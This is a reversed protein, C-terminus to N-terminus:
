KVSTDLALEHELLLMGMNSFVERALVLSDLAPGSSSSLTNSALLFESFSRALHASAFVIPEHRRDTMRIAKEASARSAALYRARKIGACFHSRIFYGFAIKLLALVRDRSWSAQKLNENVREQLAINLSVVRDIAAMKRDGIQDCLRYRMFIAINMMAYASLSLMRGAESYEALKRALVDELDLFEKDDADSLGRFLRAAKLELLHEDIIIKSDRYQFKLRSAVIGEAELEIQIRAIDSKAVEPSCFYLYELQRSFRLLQLRHNHVPSISPPTDDIQSSIVSIFRGLYDGANAIETTLARQCELRAYNVRYSHVLYNIEPFRTEIEMERSRYFEWMSRYCKLGEQVLKYSKKGFTYSSVRSCMFGFCDKNLLWAPPSSKKSIIRVSRRLDSLLSEDHLEKDRGTEFFSDFYILDTRTRQLQAWFFPEKSQPFIKIAQNFAEIARRAMMEAAEGELREAQNSLAVAIADQTFGWEPSLAFRQCRALNDQLLEELHPFGEFDFHWLYNSIVRCEDICLRASRISDFPELYSCASAIHGIASHIDGQLLASNSRTLRLQTLEEIVPLAANERCRDEAVKLQEDAVEFNGRDISQLARKLTGISDSSHTQLFSLDISIRRYLDAADNLFRLLEEQTAHPAHLGFRAVLHELLQDPLNSGPKPERCAAVEENSLGLAIQIDRVTREHPNPNKGNELESIRSKANTDAWLRKALDGQTLGL